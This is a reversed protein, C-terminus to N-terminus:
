WSCLGIPAIEWAGSRRAPLWIRGALCRGSNLRAASLHSSGSITSSLSLALCLCLPPRLLLLSHIQLCPASFKNNRQYLSKVCLANNKYIFIDRNRRCNWFDLSFNCLAFHWAKQTFFWLAFKRAKEFHRAKQTSFRWMVCLTMKEWIYVHWNYFFPFNLLTFHIAKQSYFRLTLQRSKQLTYSKIM